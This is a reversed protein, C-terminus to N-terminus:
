ALLYIEIPEDRGKVRVPGLAAAGTGAEGSRELVERSVLLQSGYDKNLQEIRSALIVVEGTVSYQKRADSGVNGTVAEGAHLGIGIGAPPIRGEEALAKVRAVLERAAAVANRCDEGTALPAGFTAMFGDGLFQNIIGRHRNVVEVAAGFVANQIAVIEEPPRHEVLRTFDRIDMFMVCVFSRRSAIGGGQGLLAEVVEPSVQQGFANVVRQREEAAYFAKVIRRRLQAAVFGAAVGALLLMVGKMLVFGPANLVAPAAVDTRTVAVHFSLAVFEVAAVVGTFVSLRLDLRLTSLVIFVAYLFAAPGQLVAVANAYQGMMLMLTTPTSTEIFANWFRLLPSPMRGSALLRGLIARVLLEYAVLAAAGGTAYGVWRMSGFNRLYDERFVFAFLPLLLMLLAFIWALIAMRMRESQLIERTLHDEFAGLSSAAHPAAPAVAASV